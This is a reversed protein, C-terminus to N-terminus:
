KIKEVASCDQKSSIRNNQETLAENGWVFNTMGDELYVIGMFEGIGGEGVWFLFSKAVGRV